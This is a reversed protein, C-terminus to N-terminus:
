PSEDCDDLQWTKASVAVFHYGETRRQSSRFIVAGTFTRKPSPPPRLALYIQVAVMIAMVVTLLLIAYTLIIIHRTQRSAAENQRKITDHLTNTSDSGSLEGIRIGM